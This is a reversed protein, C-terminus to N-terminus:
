HFLGRYIFINYNSITFCNFDIHIIFNHIKFIYTHLCLCAHIWFIFSFFLHLYIKLFQMCLFFNAVVHFIIKKNSNNNHCHYHLFQGQSYVFWANYGKNDIVQLLFLNSFELLSLISKKNYFLHFSKELFFTSTFCVIIAFINSSFTFEKNLHLSSFCSAIIPLWFM